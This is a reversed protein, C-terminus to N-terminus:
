SFILVAIGRSTANHETVANTGRRHLGGAQQGSLEPDSGESM